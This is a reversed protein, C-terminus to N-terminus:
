INELPIATEPLALRLEYDFGMEECSGRCDVRYANVDADYHFVICAYKYEYAYHELYERFMEDRSLGPVDTRSATNHWFMEANKLEQHIYEKEWYPMLGKLSVTGTNYELETLVRDAEDIYEMVDFLPRIKRNVWTTDWILYYKGNEDKLIRDPACDAAQWAKRFIEFIIRYCCIGVHNM